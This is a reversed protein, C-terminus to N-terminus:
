AGAIGSGECAVGSLSRYDVWAIAVGDRSVIWPGWGRELDGHLPAVGDASRVGDVNVEIFSSGAPELVVKRSFEFPRQPWCGLLDKLRVGEPNPSETVEMGFAVDFARGDTLTVRLFFVQPGLQSPVIQGEDSDRPLQPWWTYGDLSASPSVTFPSGPRVQILYPFDRVTVDPFAHGDYPDSVIWPEGTIGIQEAVGSRLIAGPLGDSITFEVGDAPTDTETVGTSPVLELSFAFTAEIGGEWAAEVQLVYRGTVSPLSAPPAGLKVREADSDRYPDLTLSASSLSGSVEIPTGIPVALPAPHDVDQLVCGSVPRCYGTVAARQREHGFALIAEPTAGDLSGTSTRILIGDHMPAVAEMVEVPFWFTPSGQPWTVTFALMYSGPDLHLEATGGSLDLDGVSEWPYDSRPQVAAIRGTVSDADGAVDLVIETAVPLPDRFEPGSADFITVGGPIRWEFSEAQGGITRGDFTMEAYPGEPFDPSRSLFNLKATPLAEGPTTAPSPWFARWLLGGAAAFVAFAV